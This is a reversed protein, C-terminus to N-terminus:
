YKEHFPQHAQYLALRKTGNAKAKTSIGPLALVQNQLKVARDFDGAEACAAALTDLSAQNKWHTLDCAKTAVEVAKRGDRFAPLPCTAKLWALNNYSPVFEPDLQLAKEYDATAKGYAGKAAYAEGRTDYAEKYRPNLQIAQTCDDIAQDVIGRDEYALGRDNYAEANHPDFRITQDFDLTAKEDDKKAFYALGRAMYAAGDDPKRQIAATFDKIAADYDMKALYSSGRYLFTRENDPDLQISQTFDAIAKDNDGIFLYAAGRLRYAVSNGPNLHIAESFSAIALAYDGKTTAAIGKEMEPREEQGALNLSLLGLLLWAWFPTSARQRWIEKRNLIISMEM